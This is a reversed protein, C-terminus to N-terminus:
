ADGRAEWPLAGVEAGAVEAAALGLLPRAVLPAVGLTFAAVVAAGRGRRM